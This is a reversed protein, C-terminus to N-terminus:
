FKFMDDFDDDFNNEKHKVNEAKKVVDEFGDNFDFNNEKYETNNNQVVDEFGDNFDNFMDNSSSSYKDSLSVVAFLIFIQQIFIKIITIHFFINFICVILAFALWHCSKDWVESNGDKDLMVAYMKFLLGYTLITTIIISALKGIIPIYTLFACLISAIFTYISVYILYKVAFPIARTKFSNFFINFDPKKGENVLANFSDFCAANTGMTLFTFILINIITSVITQVLGYFKLSIMGGVMTLIANLCVFPIAMLLVSIGGKNLLWNETAKLVATSNSIVSGDKVENYLKKLLKM